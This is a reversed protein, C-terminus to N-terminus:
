GVLAVIDVRCKPCQHIDADILQTLCTKGILHGHPCPMKVPVHDAQIIGAKLEIPDEDTEGLKGWCYMCTLDEAPVASIDVVELKAVFEQADVHQVSSHSEMEMEIEDFGPGENDFLSLLYEHHALSQELEIQQAKLQAQYKLLKNLESRHAEMEVDAYYTGEEFYLDIFYDEFAALCDLPMGCESASYPLTRVPGSHFGDIATYSPLKVIANAESVYLPSTLALPLDLQTAVVFDYADMDADLLEIYDKMEALVWPILGGIDSETPEISFYAAASIRLTFDDKDLKAVSDPLTADLDGRVAALYDYVGEDYYNDMIHTYLAHMCEKPMDTFGYTPVLQAPEPCWMKLGAMPSWLKFSGTVPSQEPSAEFLNDM